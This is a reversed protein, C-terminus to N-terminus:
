NMRKPPKVTQPPIDAYGKRLDLRTYNCHCAPLRQGHPSRATEPIVIVSIITGTLPLSVRRRRLQRVM